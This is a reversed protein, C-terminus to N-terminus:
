RRELGLNVLDHLHIIGVPVNNSDVAILSTIKYNEMQQLAFSALLNPDITKPNKTMIDKAQLGTIDMTKELLRRLDGDTIIGVLKGDNDVVGTAGLRKSTMELITNKLSDEEKVLPVDKGKYMIESIKLSLRKGLSGAPHLTAFDEATFGRMELLSVAIADGMVLTATTSATPALDHPCAESEVSIDLVVDCFNGIKSNKKGLMGIIKIDLRKIMPVLNFLEETNGSKSIVIVIDGARVMGLDGHLADTPHLYIAATGTSNLTAVIKRAILGSKGVGSIIVRGKSNYIMKIAEAFSDDIRKLLGEVALAEIKVVEKAKKIIDSDLM